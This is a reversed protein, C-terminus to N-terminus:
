ISARAELGSQYAEQIASVDIFILGIVILVLGIIMMKMKHKKYKELFSITFLILGGILSLDVLIGILM